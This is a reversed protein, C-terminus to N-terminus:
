CKKTKCSNEIACGACKGKKSNKIFRAIAWGAYSFIALGIVINLLM